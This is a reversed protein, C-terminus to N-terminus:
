ACLAERDSDRYEITLDGSLAADIVKNYFRRYTGKSLWVAMAREDGAGLLLCGATDRDYNGVHILIYEFGPVDLVHLMGRHFSFSRSYRKHFGGVTRVGIKYTGAPIRTEGVIKDERYEDELGDCQYVGDIYVRSLTADEDSLYRDVLIHM